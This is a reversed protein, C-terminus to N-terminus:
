ASPVRAPPSFAEVMRRIREACLPRRLDGDLHLATGIIAGDAVAATRRASEETVGSGVLVPVGGAARVASLGSLDTAAGTGSGSIILYDAGGRGATDRAERLPDAGGAPVGHKVCIDAAIRIAPAGDAQLRRRLWLLQRAAGQILGQDTWSSGSLINVRIFAAGVASAIALAAAADNRLVNIGLQLDPYARRVSASVVTMAAVVEPGVAGAAFPADGLNELIAARV